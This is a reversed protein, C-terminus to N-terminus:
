ATHKGSSMADQLQAITIEDLEFPLPPPATHGRSPTHSLGPLRPSDVIALAGAAAGLRVFARRDISTMVEIRHIPPIGRPTAHAGHGTPHGPRPVIPRVLSAVDAAPHRHAM